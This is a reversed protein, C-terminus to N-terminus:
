AQSCVFCGLIEFYRIAESPFPPGDKPLAARVAALVKRLEEESAIDGSILRNRKWEGTLSRVPLMDGDLNLAYLVFQPDQQRMRVFCREIENLWEEAMLISTEECVATFLAIVDDAGRASARHPRAPNAGSSNRALRRRVMTKVHRRFRRALRLRWKRLEGNKEGSLYQWSLLRDTEVAHRAMLGEKYLATQGYGNKAHADVAFM